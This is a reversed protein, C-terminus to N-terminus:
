MESVVCGTTTHHLYVLQTTMVVITHTSLQKSWVMLRCEVSKYSRESHNVFGARVTDALAALAVCVLKSLQFSELQRCPYTCINYLLQISLWTSFYSSWTDFNVNLQLGLSPLYLGLKLASYSSKYLKHEPSTGRLM